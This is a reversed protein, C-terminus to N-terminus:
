LPGDSRRWCGHRLRWWTREMCWAFLNIAFLTISIGIKLSCVADGTNSALDLM